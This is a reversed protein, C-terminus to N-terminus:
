ATALRASPAASVVTSGEKELWAQFMLVDWLHYQWSSRGSLHESWKERIPAPHFFGEDRLRREDLLSEAWDRLPGRLWADLPIGFGAKPREVLDAPVHRYLVQRLLWKSQGDRIKMHLPVRWAFEVVRHDLLPVRAELGVAMSARDLKTLIDDPLYTVLDRYMMRSTLEWGDTDADPDAVGNLRPAGVVVAAPDLWHSVMRGYLEAPSRAALLRALKHVKYGFIQQRWGRPLVPEVAAYARDWRAPSTREVYGGVSRRLPEPVRRLANWVRRGWIHRNYGGFLEDGGDGSLSVTVDRRALESVLFTPIQSSDAFPEDYISTLKPIVALADEATVYLETHDTGLHRAVARAYRAEDYDREPSGISYTRVPRGSQAQMLAVVASSDVGGSLFAGLPVDAVMRLGVADRLLAELADTAEAESGTFPDRRGAEAVARASWYAVPEAEADAPSRLTLITGPPLKRIGRFISRPAPVCNHRLLLCLSERDVEPAFGPHARLAHLESGFVFGGDVAGYYLPKIGLRDRVLHLRREERDWLAFAFMGVFRRVAGEVGYAEVAALIVETDSGGRFAFRGALESRLAAFNYVEGNYVIVYRGGASVMPQHGHPSLDLIALRRHGLAIGQEADVWTGASDPGRHAVAGSMRTLIGQLDFRRTSGAWTGAIGCM